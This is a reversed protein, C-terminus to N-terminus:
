ENFPLNMPEFVKFMLTKGFVEMSFIGHFMNINTHATAMFPRGLILPLSISLPAEEMEIVFFDALLILGDVVVLVDETVGVHYLLSRAVLEIMVSMEKLKGIICPITFRGPDKLKSPLKRQLVTSVEENLAVIENKFKKNKTCLEKLFTTYKPVQKIADKNGKFILPIPVRGDEM